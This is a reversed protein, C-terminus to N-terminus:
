FIEFVNLNNIFIRFKGNKKTKYEIFILLIKNVPDFVQFNLVLNVM